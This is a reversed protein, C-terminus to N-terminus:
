NTLKTLYYRRMFDGKKNDSLDPDKILNDKVPKVETIEKIMQKLQSIQLEFLKKNKVEQRNAKKILTDLKLYINQLLINKNQSKTGLYPTLKNAGFAVTSWEHLNIEKVEWGFGAKEADEPNIIDKMFEDWGEGEEEFYELQMYRFGISHQNYIGTKYNILTDEGLTTEPLFSEVYLM